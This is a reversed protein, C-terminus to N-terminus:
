IISYEKYMCPDAYMKICTIYVKLLINLLANYLNWIGNHLHEQKMGTCTVSIYNFGCM